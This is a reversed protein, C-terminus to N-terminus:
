EQELDNLREKIEKLADELNAAQAKLWSTEQESSM